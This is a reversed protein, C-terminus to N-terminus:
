DATEADKAYHVEGDSQYGLSEYLARAPLNDDGTLLKLTTAGRATLESEALRVLAAALGKRRAHEQVYLETIEGMKTEYCLSSFLQACCFGVASGGLEAICVIESPNERLSREIHAFGGPGPGNFEANLRHLAPADSPLAFRVPM